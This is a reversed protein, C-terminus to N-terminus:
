RMDHLMYKLVAAVFQLTKVWSKLSMKVNSLLQLLM